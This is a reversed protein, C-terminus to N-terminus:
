AETRHEVGINVAIGDTAWRLPSAMSASSVPRMPASSASPSPAKRPGSTELCAAQAADGQRADLHELPYVRLRREPMAPAGTTGSKVVLASQLKSWSLYGGAFQVAIDYYFSGYVDYIWADGLDGKFGFM